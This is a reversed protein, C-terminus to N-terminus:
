RNDCGTKYNVTFRCGDGYHVSGCRGCDGKTSDRLDQYKWWMENGSLVCNKGTVFVVCGNGSSDGWCNGDIGKGDGYNKDDNRILSNVAHDCYKAYMNKWSPLDCIGSGDCDYTTPYQTPKPETKTTSTPEDYEDKTLVGNPPEGYIATFFKEVAYWAYTDAIPTLTLLFTDTLLPKRVTTFQGKVSEKRRRLSRSGKPCTRKTSTRRNIRLGTSM